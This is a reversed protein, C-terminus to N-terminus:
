AAASLNLILDVEGHSMGLTSAIADASQGRQALSLVRHRRETITPKAHASFTEEALPEVTQPRRAMELLAIRRGQEVVRQALQEFQRRLEEAESETQLMVALQNRADARMKVLLAVCCAVALFSAGCLIQTLSIPSM